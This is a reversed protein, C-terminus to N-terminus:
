LFSVSPSSDIALLSICLVLGPCLARADVRLACREQGAAAPGGGALEGLEPSEPNYPPKTICAHSILDSAM